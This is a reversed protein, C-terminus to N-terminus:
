IFLDRWTTNAPTSSLFTAKFLAPTLVVLFCLEPKKRSGSSIETATNFMHSPLYPAALIALPSVFYYMVVYSMNAPNCCPPTPAPVKPSMQDMYACVRYQKRIQWSPTKNRRSRIKKIRLDISPQFGYSVPYMSEMHSSTHPTSLGEPWTLSM